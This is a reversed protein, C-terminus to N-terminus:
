KKVGSDSEQLIEKPRAKIKEGPPFVAAAKPDALLDAQKGGWPGHKAEKGTRYGKDTINVDVM